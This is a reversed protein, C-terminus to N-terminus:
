IMEKGLVYTQIVSYDDTLVVLDADYGALLKGKHDNLKLATAPNITLMNIAVDFPIEAKEVLNKLGENFKLSSGALTNTGVLYASGNARVEIEHGGLQYIGPKSGKVSLSDSVMIMFDRGKSNVLTNVAPWVVHNGDGIIEGYVDRARLAAGVLNPERHNLGNMGNFVHTMSNAGNAIAMLADHYTSASHGISVLVGNQALYKTLAFDPDQETAMTIIKIMGKAANQYEKFEEVTPVVIYEEPQAGKNAVNLYPGEFHIGVISAGEYSEEVVKSVNELAKTLVEKSQTVTTPLFSTIGEATIGKAWKVLGERHADNTDYGYAGHCHTDIFGPVIRNYGYDQDVEHTDYPYIASIKGQEIKIQAEIFQTAIWVRKSQIIM